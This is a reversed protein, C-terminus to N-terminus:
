HFRHSYENAIRYAIAAQVPRTQFPDARLQGPEPFGIHVHQVVATGIRLLVDQIHEASGLRKEGTEGRTKEVGFPHTFLQSQGM